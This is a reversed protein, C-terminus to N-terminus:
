TIATSFDTVSLRNPRFVTIHLYVHQFMKSHLFAFRLRMIRKVLKSELHWTLRSRLENQNLKCVRPESQIAYQM